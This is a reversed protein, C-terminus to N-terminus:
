GIITPYKGGFAAEPYSKVMVRNEAAVNNSIHKLLAYKEVWSRFERGMQSNCNFMLLKVEHSSLHARVIKAYKQKEDAELESRDIHRICNYLLRFYPGLDSELELFYFKLYANSQQRPTSRQPDRGEFEAILIEDATIEPPLESAYSELVARGQLSEVDTIRFELAESHRTFLELISFLTTEFRQRMFESTSNTLEQRQLELEQRQMILTALLGAFALGSFLSTAAGFGDGIQGINELKIDPLINSWQLFDSWYFLYLSWVGFIIIAIVLFWLFYSTRKRRPKDLNSNVFAITGVALWIGLLSISVIWFAPM